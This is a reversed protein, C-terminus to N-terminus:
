TESLANDRGYDIVKGKKIEKKEWEFRCYEEITGKFGSGLWSQFRAAEYVGRILGTQKKNYAKVCEQFEAPTMWDLDDRRLGIVSLGFGIVEGYTM